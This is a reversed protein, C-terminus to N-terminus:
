ESGSTFCLLAFSKDSNLSDLPLTCIWVGDHYRFSREQFQLVLPFQNTISPNILQGISIDGIGLSLELLQFCCLYQRTKKQDDARQRLISPPLSFQQVGPWLPIKLLLTSWLLNWTHLQIVRTDYNHRSPKISCWTMGGGQTAVRDRGGAKGGHCGGQQQKRLALNNGPFM